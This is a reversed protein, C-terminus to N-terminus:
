VGKQLIQLAQDDHYQKILQNLSERLEKTIKEYGKVGYLNNLEHPDKKLDFLEWSIKDGYFCILKHTETRVGFHPQVHHPQPYEYYHYYSQNKWPISKGNNNLLPLLSVGQMDAPPKV